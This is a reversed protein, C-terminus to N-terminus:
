NVTWAIVQTSPRLMEISVRKESQVIDKSAEAAYINNIYLTICLKTRMDMAKKTDDDSAIVMEVSLMCALYLDHQCHLPHLGKALIM